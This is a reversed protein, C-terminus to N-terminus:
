SVNGAADVAKVYFSYTENSALGNWVYSTQTMPVTVPQSVGARYVRYRFNFSWDFSAAWSLAIHDAGVGGVAHHGPATRPTRDRWWSATATASGAVMGALGIFLVVAIRFNMLIEKRVRARSRHEWCYSAGGHR